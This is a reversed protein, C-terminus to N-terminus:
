NPLLSNDYALSHEREAQGTSLSMWILGGLATFVTLFFCLISFLVYNNPMGGDRPDEVARSPNLSDPVWFEGNRGVVISERQGKHEGPPLLEVVSRQKGYYNMFTLTATSYAHEASAGMIKPVSTVVAIHTHWSRIASQHGVESGRGSVQLTILFLVVVVAMLLLCAKGHGKWIPYLPAYGM